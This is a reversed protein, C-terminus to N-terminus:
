KCICRRRKDSLKVCYRCWRLYTRDILPLTMNTKVVDDRSSGAESSKVCEYLLSDIEISYCSIILLENGAV